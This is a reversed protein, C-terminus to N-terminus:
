QSAPCSTALLWSALAAGLRLQITAGFKPDANPAQAPDPLLDVTLTNPIGAVQWQQPCPKPATLQVVVQAQGVITLAAPSTKLVVGGARIERIDIRRGTPSNLRVTFRDDDARTTATPTPNATPTPTPNPLTAVLPRVEPIARSCAELLKGSGSVPLERRTGDRLQLRLDPLRLLQEPLHCDLTVDADIRGIMGPEVLLESPSLALVATGDGTSDPSLVRVQETGVNTVAMSVTVRVPKRSGAGGVVDTVIAGVASSTAAGVGWSGQGLYGLTLALLGVLTVGILRRDVERGLTTMVPRQM